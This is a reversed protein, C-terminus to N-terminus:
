RDYLKNFLTPKDRKRYKSTPRFIENWIEHLENAYNKFKTFKSGFIEFLTQPVGEINYENEVFDLAYFVFRFYFGSGSTTKAAM